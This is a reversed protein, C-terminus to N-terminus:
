KGCREAALFMTIAALFLSSAAHFFNVVHNFGFLIRGSVLSIAAFLLILVGAGGSIWGIWTLTKM